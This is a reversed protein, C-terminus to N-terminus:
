ASVSALVSDPVGTYALAVVTIDDQQGFARASEVITAAPRISLERSRDFGFLEGSPSQAEVVGDSYFTLRNGPQLDFSCTEYRVGSAIGLPLAGPLNIERGDLYPPLHGANALTVKGAPTIHAALCTSFGQGARGVLHDNLEELLQAPDNTFRVLSRVAGVLAAVLMAAPLGKGAVDGLVLLLGGSPVPLIQFFDGGVQQAPQYVSEVHFGPFQETRDPILIQQVTRAAELESAAREEDRAVRIFRYLVVAIIGLNFPISSFYNGPMSVPGFHFNRGWPVVAPFALAAWRVLNIVASATCPVLMLGADAMGRRYASVLCVTEVAIIAALVIVLTLLYLNRTSTVALVPGVLILGQLIRIPWRRRVRSFRMVFELQIAMCLWGTYAGLMIMPLTGSRWGSVFGNDGIVTYLAFDLCLIGFWLYEDHDRQARYLIMATTALLLVVPLWACNALTGGDLLDRLNDLETATQISPSSGISVRAFPLRNSSYRGCFFRIALAIDGSSPLAVPFSANHRFTRAAVGPTSAISSGNVFIEYPCAHYLSLALRGSATPVQLHIRTWIYPAPLTPIGAAEFPQNHRISPWSSDDLAPDAFHPDDGFHFRWPGDLNQVSSLSAVDITQVTSGPAV